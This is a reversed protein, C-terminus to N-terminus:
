QLGLWSTLKFIGVTPAVAGVYNYQVIGNHSFQDKVSTSGALVTYTATTVTNAFTILIDQDTTNIFEIHNYHYGTGLDILTAIAGAAPIVGFAKTVDKIFNYQDKITQSM